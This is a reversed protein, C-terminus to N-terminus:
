CPQLLLFSPSLSISMIRHCCCFCRFRLGCPLQHHLLLPHLLGSSSHRCELLLAPRPLLLLM